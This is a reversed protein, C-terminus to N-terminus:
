RFTGSARCCSSMSPAHMSACGLSHPRHGPSTSSALPTDFVIAAADEHSLGLPTTLTTVQHHRALLRNLALTTMIPGGFALAPYYAPSVQLVRM